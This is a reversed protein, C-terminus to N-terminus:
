FCGFFSGAMESLTKVEQYLNPVFFQLMNNKLVWFDPHSSEFKRGRRGSRLVSGVAGCGAKCETAKVFSHNSRRIRWGASFAIRVILALFLESLDGFTVFKQLKLYM